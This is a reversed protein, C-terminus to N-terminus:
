LLFCPIPPQSLRLPKTIIMMTPLVTAHMTSSCHQSSSLSVNAQCPSKFILRVSEGGGVLGCGRIRRIREFLHETTGLCEFIHVQPPMRIRVVVSMRRTQFLVFSSLLSYCCVFLCFLVGGGFFFWFWGCSTLHLTPPSLVSCAGLGPLM